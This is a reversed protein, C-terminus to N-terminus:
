RIVSLIEGEELMSDLGSIKVMYMETDNFSLPGKEELNNLGSARDTEYINPIVYVTDSAVQVVKMLSYRGPAIKYEYIDNVKPTQIYEKHQASANINITVAVLILLLIIGIGSFTWIPTKNQVALRKYEYKMDEPMRNLTFGSNCSSCTAEPKKGYPFVPIWFVTLYEQVVKMRISDTANCAPCTVNISEEALIKQKGSYVIFM